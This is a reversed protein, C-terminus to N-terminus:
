KVQGLSPEELLRRLDAASTHPLALVKTIPPDTVLDSTMHRLVTEAKQLQDLSKRIKKRFAEGQNGTSRAPSSPLMSNPSDAEQSEEQAEQEKFQSLMDKQHSDKFQYEMSHTQEESQSQLEKPQSDKFQYEMSHTQEESQPQLDKPQSDKCQYETSPLDSTQHRRRLHEKSQSEFFLIDESQINNEEPSADAKYNHTNKELPYEATKLKKQANTEHDSPHFTTSRLISVEDDHPPKEAKSTNSNEGREPDDRESSTELQRAKEQFSFESGHQSTEQNRHILESGRVDESSTELQRAKEQLSLESGHQTTEQNRHILESGRVDTQTGGNEAEAGRLTKAEIVVFAYRSSIILNDFDGRNLNTSLDLPTPFPGHSRPSKKSVVTQSSTCADVISHEPLHDTEPLTPDMDTPSTIGSSNSSLRQLLPDETNMEQSNTQSVSRSTNDHRLHFLYDHFQYNSLHFIPEDLMEIIGAVWGTITDETQYGRLTADQMMEQEKVDHSHISLKDIKRYNLSKLIRLPPVTCPQHHMDPFKNLIYQRMKAQLEGKQFGTDKSKDKKNTNPAGVPNTGLNGNKGGCKQKRSGRSKSGIVDKSLPSAKAESHPDRIISPSADPRNDQLEYRRSTGGKHALLAQIKQQQIHHDHESLGAHMQLQRQGQEALYQERQQQKQQEEEPSNLRRPLCPRDQRQPHPRQQIQQQHQFAFTSLEHDQHQFSQTQGNKILSTQHKTGQTRVEGSPAHRFTPQHLYQNVHPDRRSVLNENPAPDSVGRQLDQKGCLDHSSFVVPRSAPSLLSSDPHFGLFRSPDNYPSPPSAYPLLFSAQNNYPNPSSHFPQM